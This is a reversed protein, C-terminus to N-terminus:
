AATRAHHGCAAHRSGAGTGPCRFRGHVPGGVQGLALGLVGFGSPLGAPRCGASGASAPRVQFGFAAQAQGLDLVDVTAHGDTLGLSAAGLLFHDLGVQAQDDGDGLLVGVTAQLEEVQDLFAVDAQHLRHVLEFVAAAVLERGVGGPPNALRDGARDGVLRAGDTDRHVHDLRM